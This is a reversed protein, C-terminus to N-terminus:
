PSPKTKCEALERDKEGLSQGFMALTFVTCVVFFILVVRNNPWPGTGFSVDQSMALGLYTALTALFLSIAIGLLEFPAQIVFNAALSSERVFGSGNAIQRMKGNWLWRRITEADTPLALQRQQILAFYVAMLSLMLSVTFFGRVAVNVENLSDLSLMTACISALLSGVVTTTAGSAIHMRRFGFVDEDSGCNILHEIAELEAIDLKLWPRMTHSEGFRATAYTASTIKFASTGLCLFRFVLPLRGIIRAPSGLMSFFEPGDMDLLAHSDSHKLRQKM